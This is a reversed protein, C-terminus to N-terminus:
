LVGSTKLDEGGRVNGERDNGAVADIQSISWEAAAERGTGTSVGLGQPMRWRKRGM